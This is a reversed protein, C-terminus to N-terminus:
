IGYEAWKAEIEAMEEASPRAIPPFEYGKFYTTADIGIKSGRAIPHERLAPEISPDLEVGQERDDTIVIDRHPQVRTALAWEVEDRNYIDIDSDVVIVWKHGPGTAWLAEIIQRANGSYYHRDMSVVTFFCACGMDTVYVEKVGPVGARILKSWSGVTAGITRLTTSESPPAGELTGHFVPNNRYTVAKLRIVPRKKRLGGYYGPFEGFPGEEEWLEPDPEVEGELVIEASAPVEIDVTRCKVLNIPEGRIAGAISIEDEGYTVQICSAALIAPDVGIVTAIPMPRKEIQYKRLMIGVQQTALLGTKNKGHIQQRYIGMNRVGTEPDKTIVMGLTGIYRGGDLHHWYPVPFKTIDIDDGMEINEQCPGRDLLRPKLPNTTAELVRTMIEKINGESLGIGIGYRKYTDMLGSALVLSSDKVKEFLLAPGREDFVRRMITGIEFRWDVEKKVRKLEGARELASIFERLDAHAM